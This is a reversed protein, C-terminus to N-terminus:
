PAFQGTFPFFFLREDSTDPIPPGSLVATGVGAGALTFEAAADTISELLIGSGDTPLFRLALRGAQNLRKRDIRDGPAPGALQVEAGTVAFPVTQAASTKDKSDKWADALFRM